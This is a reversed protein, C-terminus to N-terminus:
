RSWAALTARCWADLREAYSDAAFDGMDDITFAFTDPAGHHSSPSPPSVGGSESRFSNAVYTRDEGLNCTRHLMEICRQVTEASAGRSHQLTFAAFALGHRSGWPEARSHDLALLLDFREACSASAAVPAGCQDCM